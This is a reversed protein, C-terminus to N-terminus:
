EAAFHMDTTQINGHKPTPAESEPLEGYFKARAELMGPVRTSVVPPLARRAVPVDVTLSTKLGFYPGWHKWESLAQPVPQATVAELAARRKLFRRRQREEDDEEDDSAVDDPLPPQLTAIWPPKEEDDDDERRRYQAHQPTVVVRAGKPAAAFMAFAERTGLQVGNVATVVRGADMKRALQQRKEAAESRLLSSLLEYIKVEHATSQLTGVLVDRFDGLNSDAHDNLIKSVIEPMQVYEAMASLARRVMDDLM